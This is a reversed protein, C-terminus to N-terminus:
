QSPFFRDLVFAFRAPARRQLERLLESGLGLRLFLLLGGTGVLAAYLSFQVQPSFPRTVWYVLAAFCGLPILLRAAPILWGLVEKLNLNFERITRWIGYSCSFLLSCLISTVLLGTFGYRPAAYSAIVIFLAGEIFYIYRMFGIRKTVAALGCHCHVLALVVMWISLLFDNRRDWSISGRTWIAVFPRNCLAFMIAGLVSLSTTLIVLGRFRHLLREKEGRVVMESLMSYSFDFPRWVLQNALTFTRSCISWIAATNLGLARTVVITQSANIMQVGLALWFVDKGYGFLDRFRRWTPGGWQKGSPLIRLRFCAVANSAIIILCIAVNASVLSYIGLGNAFSIWLVAFAVPFTAIQSYNFIDNRQHAVLVHGFLRAPFDTAIVACQVLMVIKFSPQLDPDIRLFNTGFFVLLAGGCLVILGQVLLVLAGTLIMGGYEGSARDDKHDILHRSLSVSMGIDILQLYGSLQMALAWLGFERKELFHLALPISGLVYLTNAILLAYGSAVAHLFRSFRLHPIM